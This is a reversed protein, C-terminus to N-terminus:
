ELPALGMSPAQISTKKPELRLMTWGKEPVYGESDILRQAGPGIYILWDEKRFNKRIWRVLKDFWKVLEQDKKVWQQTAHDFHSYFEAYIRGRPLIDDFPLSRSFEVVDSLDHEIYYHGQQPVFRSVVNHSVDLNLLWADLCFDDSKPPPLLKLPAFTESKSRYPLIALNCTSKAYDLFRQEDEATM